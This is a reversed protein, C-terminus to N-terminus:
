TYDPLAAIECEAAIDEYRYNCFACAILAEDWTYRLVLPHGCHRCRYVPQDKPPRRSDQEPYQM